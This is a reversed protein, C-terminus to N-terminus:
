QGPFNKVLEKAQKYLRKDLLSSVFDKSSKREVAVQSSIQYDAVPLNTFKVNVEMNSLERTVGSRAERHDIYVM